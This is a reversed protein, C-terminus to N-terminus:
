GVTVEVIHQEGDGFFPLMNGLMPEGDVVISSRCGPEVTNRKLLIKYKDGRFQRYMECEIWSDPLRPDLVLGESTVSLGLTWEVLVSYLSNLASVDGITNSGSGLHDSLDDLVAKDAMVPTISQLYKLRRPLM